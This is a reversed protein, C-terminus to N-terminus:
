VASGRARAGSGKSWWWVNVIRNLAVPAYM